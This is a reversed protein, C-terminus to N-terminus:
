TQELLLYNNNIAKFSFNPDVLSKFVLGEFASSELNSDEFACIETATELIGAVTHRSLVRPYGLLPV